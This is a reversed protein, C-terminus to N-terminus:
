PVGVFLCCHYEFIFCVLYYVVKLAFRLVCDCVNTRPAIQSGNSDASIEDPLVVESPHHLSRNTDTPEENTDSVCFETM